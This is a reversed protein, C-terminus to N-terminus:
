VFDTQLELAEAFPYTKGSWPCRWETCTHTWWRFLWVRYTVQVEQWGNGTLIVRFPNGRHAEGYEEFTSQRYLFAPDLAPRQSM